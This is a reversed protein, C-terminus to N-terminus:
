DRNIFDIISSEFLIALNLMLAKDWPLERDAPNHRICRETIIKSFIIASVARLISAIYITNALTGAEPFYGGKALSVLSSYKLSFVMQNTLKHIGYETLNLISFDIYSFIRGTRQSVHIAPAIIQANIEGCLATCGLAVVKDLM